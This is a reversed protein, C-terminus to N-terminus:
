FTKTFSIFGTGRGLNQTTPSVYVTGDANTGIYAVAINMGHGLDKTLGVKWDTYSANPNTSGAVKQYGVHGNLVIGEVGTDYNLSLDLYSSGKSGYFGFLDSVAYSYKLTAFSYTGAVYLETTNPNSATTPINLNSTSYYYQLVGGDLTVGEAVEKKFGAYFDMEIPASAGPYSDSLWSINSNWNGAYFGSEHAYDFGGQIAPKSNTQSIGRYRYESALTVNATIPGPDAAVAPEDAAMATSMTMLCAASIASLTLFKTKM